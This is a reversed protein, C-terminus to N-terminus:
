TNDDVCLKLLPVATPLIYKLRRGLIIQAQSLDIGDIKNKRYM